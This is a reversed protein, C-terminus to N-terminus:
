KLTNARDASNALLALALALAMLVVLLVMEFGLPNKTCVRKPRRHKVASRTHISLHVPAGYGHFRGRHVLTVAAYGQNVTIDYIELDM